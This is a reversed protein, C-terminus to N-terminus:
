LRRHRLNRVHTIDREEAYRFRRERFEGVAGAGQAPGHDLDRPSRRRPRSREGGSRVELADGGVEGIERAPSAWRRPRRSCGTSRPPRAPSSRGDRRSPSCTRGALPVEVRAGLRRGFCAEALAILFGGESLDHATRLYGKAVLSRLLAALRAEAALDVEPPRGQEIGYLLRLYASGGFESRDEGLLVIRDGARQFAAEPLGSLSPIVGM